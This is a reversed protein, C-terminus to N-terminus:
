QAIPLPLRGEINRGRRWSRDQPRGEKDGLGDIRRFGEKRNVKKPRLVM